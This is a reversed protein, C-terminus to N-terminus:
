FHNFIITFFIKVEVKCSQILHVWCRLVPSVQRLISLALVSQLLIDLILVSSTM